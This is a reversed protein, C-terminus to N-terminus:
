KLQRFRELWESWDIWDLVVLPAFGSDVVEVLNSAGVSALSLRAPPRRSDKLMLLFPEGRRLRRNMLHPSGYLSPPPIGFEFNRLLQHSLNLWPKLDIVLLFDDQPDFRIADDHQGTYFQPPPTRFVQLQCSLCSFTIIKKLHGYKFWDIWSLKNGELKCGDELTTHYSWTPWWRGGWRGVGARRSNATWFHRQPAASNVLHHLSGDSVGPWLRTEGYNYQIKM